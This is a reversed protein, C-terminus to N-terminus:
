LVEPELHLLGKQMHQLIVHPGQSRTLRLYPFESVSWGEGHGAQCGAQM